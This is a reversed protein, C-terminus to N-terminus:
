ELKKDSREVRFVSAVDTNNQFHQTLIKEFRLVSFNSTSNITKSMYPFDVLVLGDGEKTTLCGVVAKM